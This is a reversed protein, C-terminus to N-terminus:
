AAIAENIHALAFTAPVILGVFVFRKLMVRGESTVGPPRGSLSFPELAIFGSSSQLIVKPGPLRHLPLVIMGASNGIINVAECTTKAASVTGFNSTSRVQRGAAAAPM